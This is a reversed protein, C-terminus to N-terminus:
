VEGQVAYGNGQIGYGNLTRYLRELHMRDPTSLEELIGVHVAELDGLRTVTRSLVVGLYADPNLHVRFDSLARMEDRATAPRMVGRRHFRGRRDRYGTPLVFSQHAGICPADSDITPEVPCVKPEEYEVSM